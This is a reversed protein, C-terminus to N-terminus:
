PRNTARQKPDKEPKFNFPFEVAFADRPPPFELDRLEGVICAVVKCDMLQNDAVRVSDVKGRTSVGVQVVVRGGLTEDRALGAEYCARLRDYRSEIPGQVQERSLGLEAAPLTPDTCQESESGDKWRVNEYGDPAPERRLVFDAGVIRQEESGAPARVQALRRRVCDIAQCDATNARRILVKEAMGDGRFVVRVLVASPKELSAACEGLGAIGKMLADQADMDRKVEWKSAEACTAPDDRKVAASPTAAPESGRCGLAVAFAVPMEWARM